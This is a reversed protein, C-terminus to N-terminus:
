TWTELARRLRWLGARVKERHMTYGVMASLIALGTLSLVFFGLRQSRLSARILLSGLDIILFALGLMLYARIHFWMGGVIGALCAGAFALPYWDSEANGIQFVLTIAAPAYTLATAALRLGGRADATLSGEFLHVIVLMCLGLPALYIDAGGLGQSLSLLLLALNAAVGGFAGLVRSREIRALLGYFLASGLAFLANLASAQWPLVLGIAVPLGAAFRRTATAIADLGRRRAVVTLGILAFDLALLAVADDSPTLQLIGTARVFGYGGVLAGGLFYVHRPRREAVLAALSVCFLAVLAALAVPPTFRSPTSRVLALSLALLGASLVLFGDRVRRAGHILDERKEGGTAAVVHLAIAVAAVCAAVLILREGGDIGTRWFALTSLALVALVASAAISIATERRRAIANWSGASVAVAVAALGLPAAPVPSSGWSGARSAAAAIVSWGGGLTTTPAGDAFAYIIGLVILAGGAVDARTLHAERPKAAPLTARAALAAALALAALAAGPWAGVAPSLQDISHIALALTALLPLFRLPTSRRAALATSTALVLATAPTGTVGFGLAAILLVGAAAAKALDGALAAGRAQAGDRWLARTIARGARPDQDILSAVAAFAAAAAALGLLAGRYLAPLADWGGGYLAYRDVAGTTNATGAPIWTGAVRVLAQGLLGHQAGILAAGAAVLPLAVWVSWPARASRGLLLVLVAPGLCMLPPVVSLGRFLPFIGLALADIILLLALAGAGAHPIQHYRAGEKEPAHLKEELWDGARALGRALLWLAVGIVSLNRAVVAPPLPRDIRNAIAALAVTGALAWLLGARGRVRLTHAARTAFLLACTLALTVAAAIALGRNAGRDFFWLLGALAALLGLPFAAMGFGQAIAGRDAWSWPLEVAGFLQRGVSAGRTRPTALAAIAAAALALTALVLAQQSAARPGAIAIAVCSLGLVGTTAPVASRDLRGRLLLGASAVILPMAAAVGGSAPRLGIGTQWVFAPAISIRALGAFAAVVLWVLSVDDLPSQAPMGAGTRAGVLATIGYIAALAAYAYAIWRGGAMPGIGIAVALGAALAGLYHWRLGVPSQRYCAIALGLGAVLTIPYGGARATEWSWLIAILIAAQAAAAEFAFPPLRAIRVGALPLAVPLLAALVWFIRADSAPLIARGAVAAALSALPLLLSQARPWRATLVAAQAGGAVVAAVSALLVWREPTSTVTLVAALANLTGAGVTLAFGIWTGVALARRRADSPPTMAKVGFLTLGLAAVYIGLWQGFSPAGVPSPARGGAVDSALAFIESALAAYLALIFAGMSARTAARRTVLWPGALALIPLGFRLPSDGALRPYALLTVAPLLLAPALARGAGFRRGVGALTVACAGALVAAAGMGPVLRVAALNAVAVFALPVLCAGIGALFQGALASRRALVASVMVFLAHYALLAGAVTAWRGAADFSIWAERLGYISGTLVLLAGVLWGVNEYLLPLVDRRLAAEEAGRAGDGVVRLWGAGDEGGASEGGRLAAIAGVAAARQHALRERRTRDEEAQQERRRRLEAEAAERRDDEERRRALRRQRASEALSPEEAAAPEDAALAQLSAALADDILGQDRARGLLGEVERRVAERDPAGRRRDRTM